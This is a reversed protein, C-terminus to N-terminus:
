ANYLHTGVWFTHKESTNGRSDNKFVKRAIDAEDDRCFLRSQCM